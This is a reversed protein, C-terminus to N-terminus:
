DEQISTLQAVCLRYVSGIEDSAQCVLARWLSCTGVADELSRITVAEVQRPSLCGCGERAFASQQSLTADCYEVCTSNASLGFLTELVGARENATLLAIAM